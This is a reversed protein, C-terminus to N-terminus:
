TDSQITEVLMKTHKNQTQGSLLTRVKCNGDRRFLIVHAFLNEIFTNMHFLLIFSLLFLNLQIHYTNGNYEASKRDVCKRDALPVIFLTFM